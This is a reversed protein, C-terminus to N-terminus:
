FWFQTGGMELARLIIEGGNTASVNKYTRWDVHGDLYLINAGTPTNKYMHPTVHIGGPWGGKAAWAAGGQRIVADTAIELDAAKSSTGVNKVKPLLKPTISDLYQRKGLPFLDPMGPNNGLRVGLYYYGIVCFPSAAPGFTWLENVDQEGYSPCYLTRRQAGHKVLQDRTDLPIDWLWILNTGTHQPLRGRNANAYMVLAQGLNRLQAACQIKIAQSRARTLAPLLISILVAIIGIVVLLEVLTFARRKM